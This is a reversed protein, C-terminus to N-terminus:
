ISGAFSYRRRSGSSEATAPIRRRTPVTRASLRIQVVVLGLQRVEEREQEFRISGATRDCAADIETFEDHMWDVGVSDLGLAILEFVFLVLDFGFEVLHNVLRNPIFGIFILLYLLTM